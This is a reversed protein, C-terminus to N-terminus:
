HMPATNGIDEITVLIYRESSPTIKYIRTFTAATNRTTISLIKLALIAGHEESSFADVGTAYITSISGTAIFSSDSWIYVRSYPVDSVVVVLYNEGNLVLDQTAVANAISINQISAFAQCQVVLTAPLLWCTVTHIDTSTSYIYQPSSFLISYSQALPLLLIQMYQIYSLIDLKLVSHMYNHTHLITEIQQFIFSINYLLYM